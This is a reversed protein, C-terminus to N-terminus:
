SVPRPRRAAPAMSARRADGAMSAALLQYAGLSTLLAACLVAVATAPYTLVGVDAGAIPTLERLAMESPVVLLALAAWISGAGTTRADMFGFLACAVTVVNIAAAARVIVPSSADAALVTEFAVFPMALALAVALVVRARRYARYRARFLLAAPLVTVTLLRAVDRLVGGDVALGGLPGAGGLGLLMLAGGLILSTGARVGYPFPLLAVAAVAGGASFAITANDARGDPVGLGLRLALGLLSLSVAVGLLWIRAAREDPQLPALDERLVESALVPAAPKAAKHVGSTPNRARAPAPDRAEM